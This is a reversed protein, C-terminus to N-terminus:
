EERFIDKEDMMLLLEKLQITRETRKKILEAKEATSKLIYDLDLKSELIAENFIQDIGKIDYLDESPNQLFKDISELFKKDFDIEKKRNSAREVAPISMEAIVKEIVETMEESHKFGLTKTMMKEMTEFLFKDM